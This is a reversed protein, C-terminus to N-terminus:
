IVLIEISLIRSGLNQKNLHIEGHIEGGGKAGIGLLGLVLFPSEQHTGNDVVTPYWTVITSLYSASASLSRNVSLHPLYRVMLLLDSGLDKEM